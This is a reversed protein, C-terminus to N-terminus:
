KENDTTRADIAYKKHRYAKTEDISKTNKRKYMKKETM